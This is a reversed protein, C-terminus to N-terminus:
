AGGAWRRYDPDRSLLRQCLADLDVPVDRVLARPPPADFLRKNTLVEGALGRFPLEGTLMEFLVVGMAYFDAAPTCAQEPAMYAATGVVTLGYDCLRLTGDHTVLINSPKVDRHLLGHGHLATLARTLQALVSRLREEDFLCARPPRAGLHTLTPEDMDERSARVFAVVDDGEVLDMTYWLVDDDEFLERPPVLNPHRLDALARFDRRLTAAAQEDLSRLEKLAVRENTKRDIAEYVAGGAGDGLLRGRAFRTM